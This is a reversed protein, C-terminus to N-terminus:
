IFDDLTLQVDIHSSYPRLAEEIRRHFQAVESLVHSRLEWALRMEEIVAADIVSQDLHAGPRNLKSSSEADVVLRNLDDWLVRMTLLGVEIEVIMSDITAKIEAPVGAGADAAASNATAVVALQRTHELWGQMNRLVGRPNNPIQVTMKGGDFPTRVKGFYTAAIDYPWTGRDSKINTAVTDLM